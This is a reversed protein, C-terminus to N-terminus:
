SRPHFHPASTYKATLNSISPPNLATTSSGFHLKTNRGLKAVFYRRNVHVSENVSWCLHRPETLSLTNIATHLRGAEISLARPSAARKSDIM